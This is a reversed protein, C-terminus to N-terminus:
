QQTSQQEADDDDGEDDDDEDEQRMETEGSRSLIVSGYRVDSRVHDQCVFIVNSFDIV